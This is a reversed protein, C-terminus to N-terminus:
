FYDQADQADIHILFRGMSSKSDTELWGAFANKDFRGQIGHTELVMFRIRTM